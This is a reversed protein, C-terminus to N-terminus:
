AYMVELLIKLKEQLEKDDKGDQKLNFLRVRNLLGFEKIAELANLEKEIINICENKDFDVMYTAPITEQRLRKIAEKSTM